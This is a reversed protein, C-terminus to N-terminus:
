TDSWWKCSSTMLHFCKRTVAWKHPSNVPWRHIGRVCSLSTSSQHKREDKGSCVISYVISVSTIESTMTSMIVYRYHNHFLIFSKLFQCFYICSYFLVYKRSPDHANKRTIPQPNFPILQYLFAYWRYQYANQTCKTYAAQWKPM